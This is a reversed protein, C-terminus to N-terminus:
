VPIQSNDSTAGRLTSEAELGLKVMANLPNSTDEKAKKSKDDSDTDDVHIMAVGIHDHNTPAKYDSAFINSDIGFKDVRGLSTRARSCIPVHVALSLSVVILPCCTLFMDVRWAVVDAFRRGQPQGACV